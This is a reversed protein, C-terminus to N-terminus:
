FIDPFRNQWREWTAENGVIFSMSMACVGTSLVSKSHSLYIENQSEDTEGMLHRNEFHHVSSGNPSEADRFPRVLQVHLGGHVTSVRHVSSKKKNSIETLSKAKPPTPYECTM